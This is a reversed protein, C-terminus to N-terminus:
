FVYLSTVGVRYISGAFNYNTTTVAGTTGSVQYNYGNEAFLRLTSHRSLDYQLGLGYPVVSM